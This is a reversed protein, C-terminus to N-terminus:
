VGKASIGGDVNIISGTVWRSAEGLLFVIANAADSVHGLGLPYNKAMEDMAGKGLLGAGGGTMASGQMFGGSVSNCRIGQAAFEVAFSRCLSEVCSRSAGYLANGTVGFRASISTMTVLSCSSARNKLRAFGYFLSAALVAFEDLVERFKAPKFGRLPLFSHTGACHACGALPLGQKATIETLWQPLNLENLDGQEMQHGEGPMLELTEQLKEMDRGNVIVKAGLSALLVSCARGIGGSAGTVLYLRGAVGPFETSETSCSM